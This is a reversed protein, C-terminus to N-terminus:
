QVGAKRALEAFWPDGTAIALQTFLTATTGTPYRLVEPGAGPGVSLGHTVPEGPRSTQGLLGMGPSPFAQAAQLAAQMRNPQPPAGGQVPQPAPAQPLRAPDQAHRTSPLPVIKANQAQQEGEGYPLAPNKQPTRRATRPM